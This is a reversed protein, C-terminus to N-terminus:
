VLGVTHLATLYFDQFMILMEMVQKKNNCQELMIQHGCSIIDEEEDVLQRAPNIIETHTHLKM